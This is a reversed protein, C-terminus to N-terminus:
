FRGTFGVVAGGNTPVAAPTFTVGDGDGGGYVGLAGCFGVGGAILGGAALGIGIPFSWLLVDNGTSTGKPDWFTLSAITLATGGIGVGIGINRTLRWKYLPDTDPTSPTAAPPPTAGFTPDPAPATSVVQPTAAKKAERYKVEHELTDLSVYLMAVQGVRIEVEKKIDGKVASRLTVIRKGERLRQDLAAVVPTVGLPQGEVFVPVGPKSTKVELYGTILEAHQRLLEDAAVKSVGVLGDVSGQHTRVVHGMRASSKANLIVLDIVVSQASVRNLRGYLVREVGLAGAIEAICSTDDTCGGLKMKQAEVGLAAEIDSRSVVDYFGLKEIQVQVVSTIAELVSDAFAPKGDAGKSATIQLVAIKPKKPVATTPSPAPTPAPGASVPTPALLPVAIFLALLARVM